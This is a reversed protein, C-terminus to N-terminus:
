SRALQKAIAALLDAQKVPKTLFDNAGLRLMMERDEIGVHATVALIPFDFGYGRVRRVLEMGDMGPLGIDVLMLAPQRNPRASGAGGRGAGGGSDMGLKALAEYATSCMEVSYGEREILRRVYIQNIEEDEVVLVWIDRDLPAPSEARSAEGALELKAPPAEAGAGDGEARALDAAPANPNDPVPLVVTFTSGEGPKSEVSVQGGLIRCLQLVVNLGLGIGGHEKTYTHELQTFPEFIANLKDEPIGVGTDSVRVELNGGPRLSVRVSVAGRSTFKISNNLLNSIIQNLRVPDFFITDPEATTEWALELGKVTAQRELQKCLGDVLRSLSFEQMEIKLGGRGIRTFDILDEVIGSLNQVSLDILDVFELQGPDTLEDRLLSAMGMIGHIPTRLEHSINALFETRVTFAKNLDEVARHYETIDSIVVVLGSFRGDDDPVPASNISVTRMGTEPLNLFQRFDYVPESTVLAADFFSSREPDPQGNPLCPSWAPSRMNDGLRSVLYEAQPNSHIIKGEADTLFVALPNAKSLLDRRNTEARLEKLGQQKTWFSVLLPALVQIYFRAQEGPIADEESTRAGLMGFLYNNQGRTAGSGSGAEVPDMALNMSGWDTLAPDRQNLYLDLQTGTVIAHVSEPFPPSGPELVALRTKAPVGAGETELFVIGRCGLKQRLVELQRRVYGEDPLSTAILRESVFQVLGVLEILQRLQRHKQSTFLQAPKILDEVLVADFLMLMGCALLLGHVPLEISSPVFLGVAFFAAAMIPPRWRGWKLCSLVICAFELLRLVTSVAPTIAADDLLFLLFAALGFIPLSYRWRNWSRPLIKAALFGGCAVLMGVLAANEVSQLAAMGGGLRDINRLLVAANLIAAVFLSSSVPIWPSGKANNPNYLGLGIMSFAYFVSAATYAVITTALTIAGTIGLVLLVVFSSVSIINSIQRSELKRPQASPM